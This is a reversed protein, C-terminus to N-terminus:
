ILVIFIKTLDGSVNSKITDIEITKLYKTDLVSRVLVIGQNINYM